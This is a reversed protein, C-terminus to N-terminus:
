SAVAEKAKEMREELHFPQVVHIIDCAEICIEKCAPGYEMCKNQDITVVGDVESIANAPCERICAGCHICGNECITRTVKRSDKTSCRILVRANRPVLSIIGKPCTKVCIGCGVCLDKTIVPFNDVMTIADFPCAKACEGFGVCGYQCEMPGAFALDAGSCAGYGIYNYKKHVHGQVRSCHVAAVLDEVAGPKKGTIEAVADAM